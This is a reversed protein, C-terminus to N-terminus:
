KPCRADSLSFDQGNKIQSPNFGKLKMTNAAFLDAYKENSYMQHGYEHYLIFFIEPEPKSAFQNDFLIVKEDWLISCKNPNHGFVIAFGTPDEMMREPQPLVRLPYVRPLLTESFWGKEVWYNGAPVNFFEVKPLLSETEYFLIMRSDRIIIPKYVDNVVFGTKLGLNLPRM